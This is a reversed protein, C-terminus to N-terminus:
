DSQNVTLRTLYWADTRPKSSKWNHPDRSIQTTLVDAIAEFSQPLSLTLPLDEIKSHALLQLVLPDRNEISSLQDTKIWGSNSRWDNFLIFLM